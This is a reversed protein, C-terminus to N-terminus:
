RGGDERSVRLGPRRWAPGRTTVLVETGGRASGTPVPAQSLCCRDTDSDTPANPTKAKRAMPHASRNQLTMASGPILWHHCSSPHHRPASSAPPPIPAMKAVRVERRSTSYPSIGSPAISSIKEAAIRNGSYRRRGSAPKPNRTPACTGATTRPNPAASNRTGMLMAISRSIGSSHSRSIKRMFMSAEMMPAIDDANRNRRSRPPFVRVM